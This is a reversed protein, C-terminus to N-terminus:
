PSEAQSEDAVYRRVGILRRSAWTAREITETAEAYRFMETCVFSIVGSDTRWSDATRRGTPHRRGRAEKSTAVNAPCLCRNLHASSRPEQALAGGLAAQRCVAGIGQGDSAHDLKRTLRYRRSNGSSAPSPTVGCAMAFAAASRLRAPDGSEGGGGRLRAASIAGGGAITSLAAHSSGLSVTIRSKRRAIEGTSVKYRSLRQLAM